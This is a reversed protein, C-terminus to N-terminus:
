VRNHYGGGRTLTTEEVLQSAVECLARLEPEPFRKEEVAIALLRFYESAPLPEHNTPVQDFLWETAMDGKPIKAHDPQPLGATNRFRESMKTRVCLLASYYQTPFKGGFIARENGNQAWAWLMDLNKAGKHEPLMAEFNLSALDALDKAAATQAM